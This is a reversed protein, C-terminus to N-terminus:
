RGGALGTGDIQADFLLHALVSGNFFLLGDGALHRGKKFGEHRNIGSRSLAAGSLWAYAIPLCALIAGVKKEEPISRIILKYADPFVIQAHRRSARRFASFKAGGDMGNIEIRGATPQEIM